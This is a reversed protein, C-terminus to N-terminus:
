TIYKSHQFIFIGKSPQTCELGQQKALEIVTDDEISHWKTYRSLVFQGTSNLLCAVTQMLPVISDKTYIVDAAIITDYQGNEELFTNMHPAGWLLQKCQIRDGVDNNCNRKVNARMGKLTKTDGDTLTVKAGMYCAVTGCLGLGAGLELVSKGKCLMGSNQNLYDALRPAAQWLTVGTSHDTEDSDLEFGTLAIRKCNDKDLQIDYTFTESKDDSGFLDFAINEEEEKTSGWGDPAEIWEQENNEM